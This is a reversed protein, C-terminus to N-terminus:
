AVQAAGAPLADEPAIEGAPKVPAGNADVLSAPVAANAPTTAEPTAAVPPVAAGAAQMKALQGNKLEILRQLKDLQSQLDNMRSKLEANDRRTTDLAEQAVALKNGLDADGAGGKAAPKGG